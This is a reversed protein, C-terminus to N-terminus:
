KTLAIRVPHVVAGEVGEVFANPAVKRIINYAGNVDAQIYRGNASQYPGRKIRMGSFRHEETQGLDYIPLEDLDLFSARSTYSEENVIVRIGVLIAKYTLMDIFRANM